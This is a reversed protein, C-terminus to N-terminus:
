DDLHLRHTDGGGIQVAKKDFFVMGPATKRTAAIRVTPNARTIKEALRKTATAIGSMRSLLNLITREATLITRANGTVKIIVQSNKFKDGDSVRAEVELALSQALVVIEEIGAAVGDEQARIEAEVITDEPVIAAVTVDGQGVDEALIEM